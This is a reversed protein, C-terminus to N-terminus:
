ISFLCSLKFFRQLTDAEVSHRRWRSYTMLAGGCHRPPVRIVCGKIIILRVNVAKAIFGVGNVLFAARIAEIYVFDTM